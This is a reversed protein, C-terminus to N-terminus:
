VRGFVRLVANGTGRLVRAGGYVARKIPAPSRDAAAKVTGKVSTTVSAARRTNQLKATLEAIRMSQSRIIADRLSNGEAAAILRAQMEVMSLEGVHDATVPAISARFKEDREALAQLWHEATTM